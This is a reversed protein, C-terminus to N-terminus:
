RQFKFASVSTTSSKYFGKNAIYFYSAYCFFVSLQFELMYNLSNDTITTIFFLVVVGMSLVRVASRERSEGGGGRMVYFILQVFAACYLLLGVLGVDIYIRLLESHLESDLIGKDVWSNVSGIGMGYLESGTNRMSLATGWLHTRGSTNLNSLIEEFNFEVVAKQGKEVDFFTRKLLADSGYVIAAILIVGVFFLQGAKGRNFLFLFGSLFLGAVAIRTFAFIMAVVLVVVLGVYVKKKTISFLLYSLLVSVSLNFSFNAPSMAPAALLPISDFFYQKKQLYLYGDSLMNFLALSVLLVSGAIVARSYREFSRFDRVWTYAIVMVIIPWSLKFLMVLGDGLDSTWALTFLSYIMFITYIYFRKLVSLLVSFNFLSLVFFYVYFLVVYYFQANGGFLAAVPIPAVFLIIRGKEKIM